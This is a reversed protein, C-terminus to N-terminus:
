YTFVILDVDSFASFSESLKAFFNFNQNRIIEKDVMKCQLLAKIHQNTKILHTCYFLCPTKERLSPRPSLLSKLNQCITM